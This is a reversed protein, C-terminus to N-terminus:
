LGAADLEAEVHRNKSTRGSPQEGRPVGQEANLATIFRSVAERSTCRQGGIRLSELKHGRRGHLVWRWVSSLSMGKGSRGPFMRCVEKLPILTESQLDIM